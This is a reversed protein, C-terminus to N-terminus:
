KEEAMSLLIEQWCEMCIYFLRADVLVGQNYHETRVIYVKGKNYPPKEVTSIDDIEKKCKQCKM